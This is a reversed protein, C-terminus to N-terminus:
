YAEEFIEIDFLLVTNPPVLDAFGEEGYGLFSPLLLTMSTGRNVLKMAQDWGPAMQGITFRIPKGREYSSDFTAGDLFYGKYDAKVPMGRRLLPGDGENHIIYFLGNSERKVNLNHEAIYDIILNQDIQFQSRPDTTYFQYLDSFSDDELSTTKAEALKTSDGSNGQKTNCSAFLCVIFFSLSIFNFFYFRKRCLTSM